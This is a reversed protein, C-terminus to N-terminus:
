KLKHLLWEFLGTARKYYRESQESTYVAIVDGYRTPNYQKELDDLFEQVEEELQLGVERALSVLGHTKPPYGEAAQEIWIAKLLKEIAQQCHFVCPRHLSSTLAAKAMERDEDALAV